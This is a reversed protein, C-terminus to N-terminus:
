SEPPEESPSTTALYVDIGIRTLLTALVLLAGASLVTRLPVSDPLAGALVLLSLATSGVAVVVVLLTYARVRPKSWFIVDHRLRRPQDRLRKLYGSDFMMALLLVPLVQALTTYFDRNM